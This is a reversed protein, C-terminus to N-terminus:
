NMTIGAGPATRAKPGAATNVDQPSRRTREAMPALGGSVFDALGLVM